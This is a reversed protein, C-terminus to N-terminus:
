GGRTVLPAGWGDYQGGVEEAREILDCVVAHVHELRTPDARRVILGFRVLGDGDTAVDTEFGLAAVERAFRERAEVTRFHISHDIMRPVDLQDGGQAMAEVVRRDQIWQYQYKNPIIHDRVHLWGSDLDSKVRARRGTFREVVATVAERLGEHRAGHFLLEAHEDAFVRAVLVADYRARLKETIAATFADDQADAVSLRVRLLWPRADMPVEEAIRMDIEIRAPAGDSYGEFIDWSSQM